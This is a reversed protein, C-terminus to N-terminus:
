GHLDKVEKLLVAICNNFSIKRQPRGRRFLLGVKSGFAIGLDAERAEGPGNVECGMLAVRLPRSNVTLLKCNVATLEKEFENVLKVLDVECRGCTPCSIIEPGFRRLGLAELIIKAAQVETKATDTLSVRITDGIGELLLAGVAISSKVVGQQPLGTATVGLHLPYDCTAAIKRYAEITDLINSAKLSIVIDYFKFEELVKVYELVEKVMVDAINKTKRLSGSNVGVRIPIHAQKAARAIERIEEKRYINGPNLRIKDAGNDIAELALQWHFHIDAVLPIKAESRIKKLAQADANDKIALRVIECGADKLEKIQRSTREIDATRTKVMSQIAIPNNGGISINGIKIVKAKRRLRM